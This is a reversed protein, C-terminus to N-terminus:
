DEGKELNLRSPGAFLGDVPRPRILGLGASPPLNAQIGNLHRSLPLRKGDRSFNKKHM